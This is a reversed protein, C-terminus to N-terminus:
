IYRNLTANSGPLNALSFPKGSIYFYTENFFAGAYDAPSGSLSDSFTTGTSNASMDDILTSNGINGAYDTNVRYKGVNFSTKCMVSSRELPKLAYGPKPVYKGVPKAYVASVNYRIWSMTFIGACNGEVFSHTSTMYLSGPAMPTGPSTNNSNLLDTYPLELFSLNEEGIFTTNKPYVCLSGPSIEYNQTSAYIGRDWNSMVTDLSKADM